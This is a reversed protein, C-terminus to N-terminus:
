IREAWNHLIRKRPDWPSPALETVVSFPVDRSDPVPYRYAFYNILEEIRVADTPPMSGMQLFRRVNSYAGTDVDISFTSVPETTVTKIRGDVIEAYKEGRYPEPQPYYSPGSLGLANQSKHKEIAAERLRRVELQERSQEAAAVRLPTVVMTPDVDGGRRSKADTASTREVEAEGENETRDQHTCAVLWIGVLIISVFKPNSNM